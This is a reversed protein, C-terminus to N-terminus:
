DCTSHFFLYFLVASKIHHSAFYLSQPLLVINAESPASFCRPLHCQKRLDLHGPSVLWVFHWSFLMGTSPLDFTSAGQGKPFQSEREDM